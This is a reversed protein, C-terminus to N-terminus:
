KRSGRSNLGKKKGQWSSSPNPCDRIFHGINGCRFCPDKDVSQKPKVYGDRKANGKVTRQLDVIQLKMGELTKQLSALIESNPQDQSATPKHESSVANVYIDDQDKPNRKKKGFMSSHVHQFKLIADRAEEMTYPNQMYIAHGADKDFLGQCFKCIAQRDAYVQSCEKFAKTALRLVRDYWDELSEEQRQAANQFKANSTEFPERGGFRSELKSLLLHYGMDEEREVLTEYYDAAKGTLCWSLCTRSERSRLDCLDVYEEFMKRFAIWSRKGDYYMGKPIYPFRGRTSRKSKHHRTELLSASVADSGSDSSDDSDTNRSLGDFDLKRSIKYISDKRKIKDHDSHEQPQAKSSGGIVRDTKTHSKTKDIGKDSSRTISSTLAEATNLLSNIQAIKSANDKSAPTKRGAQRGATGGSHTVEDRAEDQFRTKSASHKVPKNNLDRNGTFDLYALESNTFSRRVLNELTKRTLNGQTSRSIIIADAIKPGVGIIGQLDEHSAFNVAINSTSM